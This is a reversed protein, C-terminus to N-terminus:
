YNAQNFKPKTKTLRQNYKHRNLKERTKHFETLKKIQRGVEINQRESYNENRYLNIILTTVLHFIINSQGSQRLIFSCM